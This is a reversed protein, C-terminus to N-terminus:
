WMFLNPYWAKIYEWFHNMEDPSNINYVKGVFYYDSNSPSSIELTYNIKKFTIFQLHEINLTLVKDGNNDLTINKIFIRNPEQSIIISGIIILMSLFIFVGIIQSLSAGASPLATNNSQVKQFNM